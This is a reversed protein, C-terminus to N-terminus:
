RTMKVGKDNMKQIGDKMLGIDKSIGELRATNTDINSLHGVIVSMNDKIIRINENMTMTISKIDVIGSAVGKYILTHSQLEAKVDSLLVNTMTMRGNLEDVSDQSANAIGKQSGERSDEDEYLEKFQDNILDAGAKAGSIISDKLNDLSRQEDDDIVGDDMYEAWLDYWEELKAKYNKDFMAKIMAKRFYDGFSQAFDKSDSDMDYLMDLFSDYVSDFSVGTLSEKWAENMEEIKEGSEIISELYDKVDDDLKAWFIPAENRLKELQEVSLDFLGEMRGDKIQNYASSGIANQAQRWGEDSMGKKIRVGISHSGASAGANLRDKGLERAAAAQKDILELAYKYANKANEGTMTQM